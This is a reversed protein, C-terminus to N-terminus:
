KLLILQGLLVKSKNYAQVIYLGNGIGVPLEILIQRGSLEKLDYVLKGDISFIKIGFNDKSFDNPINATFTHMAPNPTLILRDMQLEGSTLTPGGGSYEYAGISPPANWANGIIDTATMDERGGLPDTINMPPITAGARYAPSAATLTLDFHEKDTWQPEAPTPSRNDFSPYNTKYTAWDTIDYFDTGYLFFNQDNGSNPNEQYYLNNDRAIYFPSDNWTGLAYNDLGDINDYLINNIFSLSDTGGTAVNAFPDQGGALNPNHGYITNNWIYVSNAGEPLINRATSYIFVNGYIYINYLRTGAGGSQIFIQNSTWNGSFAPLDSDDFTNRYIYVGDIMDTNSLQVSLDLGTTHYGRKFVNDRIILNKIAIEEGADQTIYTNYSIGRRGCDSIYCHEILSNAHYDEIGYAMGSGKVGIYGITDYRYIMGEVGGIGPYGSSIGAQISFRVTLSDFILWQEPFNGNMSFCFGRQALEFSDFETDPDGGSWYFYIAGGSYCWEGDSDVAGVSGQREDWHYVSDDLIAFLGGEYGGSTPTSVPTASVYRSGADVTWNTLATSGYIKPNAGTGYSGIRIPNAENGSFDIDCDERFTEGRRFLIEDGPSPDVASNFAAWTPYEGDSGITYTAQGNLFIAPFFLLFIHIIKKM